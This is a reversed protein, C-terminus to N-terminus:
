QASVPCPVILCRFGRDRGSLNSSMEKRVAIGAVFEKM